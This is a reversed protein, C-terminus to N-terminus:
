WSDWDNEEFSQHYKTDPCRDKKIGGDPDGKDGEEDSFQLEGWGEVEKDTDTTYPTSSSNDEQVPKNTRKVLSEDNRAALPTNTGNELIKSLAQDQVVDDTNTINGMQSTATHTTKYFKGSITKIAWGAWQPVQFRLSLILHHFYSFIFVSSKLLNINSEFIKLRSRNWEIPM